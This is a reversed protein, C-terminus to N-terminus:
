RKPRTPESIHILSLGNPHARIWCSQTKVFLPSESESVCAPLVGRSFSPPSRTICSCALSRRLADVSWWFSSSPCPGSEVECGESPVLGASVKIKFKWGGSSHSSVNRSNLDGPRHCKTMADRPFWCLFGQEFQARRTVEPQCPLLSM